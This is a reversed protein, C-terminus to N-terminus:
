MPVFNPVVSEFASTVFSPKTSTESRTATEVFIPVLQVVGVVGEQVIPECIVEAHTQLPLM